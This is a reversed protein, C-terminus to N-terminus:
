ARPVGILHAVEDGTFRGREFLSTAVKEIAPWENLVLAEANIKAGRKLKEKEPQKLGMAANVLRDLELRDSVEMEGRKPNYRREAEPGACCVIMEDIHWESNESDTLDKDAVSNRRVVKGYAGDIPTRSIWVEEIISHNDRFAAVAHGAEHHAIERMRKPGFTKM